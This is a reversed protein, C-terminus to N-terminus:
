SSRSFRRLWLRFLMQRLSPWLHQVAAEEQASPQGQNTGWRNRVFLETLYTFPVAHGQLRRDLAQSYEYPTQWRQPAMGIWSAVRCIRWYMSAVATGNAYMQRWRYRMCAWFLLLLSVALLALAMITWFVPGAFTAVPQKTQTGTRAPRTPVATPKPHTAAPSPTAVVSPPSPTVVPTPVSNGTRDGNLAFGPTPDFNIWGYGPFYAQVWSHADTGNVSWYAHSTDYHGRSFGNVVRTPIGLLRGMVAMATAYHTCYGTRNKLLWDVVDINAPIPANDLSYHFDHENNLHAEILSLAEYANRAGHTWQKVTTAVAPSLDTPISLYAEQLRGFYSDIQWPTADNQPLPLLSLSNPDSDPLQSAVNYTENHTLATQKTWSATTGDNYIITNVDFKIPLAPAFLYHKNGEPPQIVTVATVIENYSASPDDAPYSLGAAYYSGAGVTSSWTHGDFYNYSFGELYHAQGDSSKYRLVEGQPLQVSGSVTLRDSFFNTRPQYPSTLSGLDQWSVHGSVVNSWANNLRDWFARGSTPQGQIPLIWGILVAVLMILCAVQMRRRNMTRLWVRDTHLGEESWTVIQTVLYM